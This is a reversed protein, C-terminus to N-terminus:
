GGVGSGGGYGQERRAQKGEGEAERDMEVRGFSSGQNVKGENGITEGGFRHESIAEGYIINGATSEGREKREERVVQFAENSTSDLGFM